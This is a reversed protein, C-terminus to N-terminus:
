FCNIKYHGKREEDLKEFCRSLKRSFSMSKLESKVSKLLVSNCQVIKVVPVATRLWKPLLFLQNKTVTCSM